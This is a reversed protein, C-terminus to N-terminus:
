AGNACCHDTAVFENPTTTYPAITYHGRNDWILSGNDIFKKITTMTGVALGYFKDLALYYCNENWHRYIRTLLM